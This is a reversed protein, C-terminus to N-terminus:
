NGQNTIQSQTLVGDDFYYKWEGHKNGEKYNGEWHLQGSHRFQKALGNEEGDKFTKIRFLQGDSFYDLWEGDKKSNKFKGNEKGSVKGTFPENTFKKYHLGDREVLDDITLGDAWSLTASLLLVSISKVIHKMLLKM